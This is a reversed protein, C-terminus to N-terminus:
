EEEDIDAEEEAAASKKRKRQALYKQGNKAFSREVALRARSQRREQQMQAISDGKELLLKTEARDVKQHCAKQHRQLARTSERAEPPTPPLDM